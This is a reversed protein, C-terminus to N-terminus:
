YMEFCLAECLFWVYLASGTHLCQGTYPSYRPFFYTITLGLTGSSPWMLGLCVYLLPFVYPIDTGHITYVSIIFCISSFNLVSIVSKPDVFHLTLHSFVNFLPINLPTKIVSRTDDRILPLTNSRWPVPCCRFLSQSVNHPLTVFEPAQGTHM